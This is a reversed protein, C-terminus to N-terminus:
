DKYKYFYLLLFNSAAKSVEKQVEINKELTITLHIFNELVARRYADDVYTELREEQSAQIVGEALEDHHFLLYNHAPSLSLFPALLHWRPNNEIQEFLVSINAHPQHYNALAILVAPALSVMGVERVIAADIVATALGPFKQEQIRELDDVLIRLFVEELEELTQPVPDQRRALVVLIRVLRAKQLSETKLQSATAAWAPLVESIKDLITIRDSTEDPTFQDKAELRLANPLSRGAVVLVLFPCQKLHRQLREVYRAEQDQIEDILLFQPQGEGKYFDDLGSQVLGELHEVWWVKYGQEVLDLALRHLAVSKGSGGHGIIASALCNRRNRSNRITTELLATRFSRPADWGRFVGLWETGRQFSYFKEPTIKYLEPDDGRALAAQTDEQERAEERQRLEEGVPYTGQPSFLKFFALNQLTDQLRQLGYDQQELSRILDINQQSKTTGRMRLHAEDVELRFILEEWQSDSLKNLQTLLRNRDLM